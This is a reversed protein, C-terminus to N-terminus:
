LQLQSNNFLTYIEYFILDIDSWVEVMWAYEITPANVPVQLESFCGHGRFQLSSMVLVGADHSRCPLRIQACM